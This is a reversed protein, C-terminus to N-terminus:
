SLIKECITCLKNFGKEFSFNNKIKDLFNNDIISLDNKNKICSILNNYIIEDNDDMNINIINDKFLHKYDSPINGVLKSNSLPIEIYKKLLLDFKSSTSITFYSRNILKSLRDDKPVRCKYDLYSELEIIKINYKNESKIKKLINYIRNRLPYAASVKNGYFLIDIDKKIDNYKKFINIDIYLGFVHYLINNKRLIDEIHNNKVPILVELFNYYRYLNIITDTYIMDEFFMIKKLPVTKFDLININTWDNMSSLFYYLVVDPMWKNRYVWKAISIKDDNLVIINPKTDLYKLLQYRNTSNQTRFLDIKAIILIKKHRKNSTNNM